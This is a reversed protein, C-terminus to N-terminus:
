DQPAAPAESEELVVQSARTNRVQPQRISGSPSPFTLTFSSGQGPCSSVVIQGGAQEVVERVISLGLGTGPIGAAVVNGGRRFADFVAEHGPEGDPSVALHPDIGMGTDTVNVLVAMLEGNSREPMVTVTVSGPGPTYKIANDILNGICDRLDRPDVCVTLEEDSPMSCVLKIQKSDALPRFRGFLENVTERVDSGSQRHRSPDAEQVRALTLLETVQAIGEQCRHIIKECTGSVAEPPVLGTRVLEVMTQIAALPSKLQHAATQMFRSRRRQLDQIARQSQKLAANAQQLQREQTQFHGAIHLTFYLTGFIGCAVVVLAALVYEPRAYLGVSVSPLFDYHPALWGRWEGIVLVAYLAWAWIGQLVAHWRKLLLSVISMHFLYFIAVPNEVGGTYRLIATLLLLDTAVQANAFWALREIQARLAKPDRTVHRFLSRSVILWVLNVLALVILVVALDFPRQTVPAVFRELALAAVAGALFIWRLRIFWHLRLMPVLAVARPDGELHALVQIWDTKEVEPSRMVDDEVVPRVQILM